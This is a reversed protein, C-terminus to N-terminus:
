WTVRLGLKGGVSRQEMGDLETTYSAKAYLALNQTVQASLGGGLEIATSNRESRIPYGNFKVVDSANGFEHWLNALLFPKIPM